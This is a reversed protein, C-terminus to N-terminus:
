TLERSGVSDVSDAEAPRLLAALGAVSAVVGAALEIRLLAGPVPRLRQPVGAGVMSAVRLALGMGVAEAM